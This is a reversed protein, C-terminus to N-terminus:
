AGIDIREGWPEQYYKSPPDSWNAWIVPFDPEAKPYRSCEMDTFYLCVTPKIGQEELWAFGPRFNTGGRGHIEIEEPLDFATYEATHRVQTDVQVLFVREPQIEAVLGRLESWFEALTETPLSGSTDILVALTDMGEARLSPLYLGSDILRHNPASWSYDSKTADALHRRLLARWDLRADHAGHVTERISGPLKGEASALSAAQHMAEDWAQEEATLDAPSPDTDAGGDKGPADMVEGTGAPDHSAPVGGQRNQQRSDPEGTPSAHEREQANSDHGNQRGDSGNNGATNTDNEQAQAPETDSEANGSGSEDKASDDGNRSSDDGSTEGDAADDGQGQGSSLSADGSDSSPSAEDSANEGEEPGPLRNYADEVSVGEWAQADPPLVFGAERLLAHTVLQSAHQWRDPDREGRRTHHKLACGLVVRAIATEIAPAPTDAVWRPNFRIERGDGALTKRSADPKLPLRLALSGFFPQKRLLETVCRSVRGMSETRIRADM